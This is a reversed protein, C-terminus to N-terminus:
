DNGAAAQETGQPTRGYHPAPAAPASPAMGGIHGWGQSLSLSPSLSPWCRWSSAAGVSFRRTSESQLQNPCSLAIPKWSVVDKLYRFFGLEPVTNYKFTSTYRTRTYTYVSVPRPTFQFHLSPCPLSRLQQMKGSSAAPPRDTPHTAGRQTVM